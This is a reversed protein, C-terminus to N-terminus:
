LAGVARGDLYSRVEAILVAPRIPKTIFGECGAARASREFLPMTQGTLAIVLIGATAPSTKLERTFELGDMGPLGIDMLILDPKRRSVAIRAQEASGAGQVAFGEAELTATALLLNAPDDEVILIVKPKPRHTM